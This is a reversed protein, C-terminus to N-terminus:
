WAIEKEKVHLLIGQYTSFLQFLIINSIVELEESDTIQIQIQIQIPLSSGTPQVRTIRILLIYSLCMRGSNQNVM